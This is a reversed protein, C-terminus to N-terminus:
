NPQGQSCARSACPRPSRRLGDPATEYCGTASGSGGRCQLRPGRVEHSQHMHLHLHVMPRSRPTTTTKSTQTPTHLKSYPHSSRALLCIWPKRLARGSPMSVALWRTLWGTVNATKRVTKLTVKAIGRTPPTKGLDRAPNLLLPDSLNFPIANPWLAKEPHLRWDAAM